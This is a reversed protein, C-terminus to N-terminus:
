ILKEYRISFLAQKTSFIKDGKKLKKLTGSSATEAEKLNKRHKAPV